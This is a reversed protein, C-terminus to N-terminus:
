ECIMMYQTLDKLHRKVVRISGPGQGDDLGYAKPGYNASFTTETVELVVIFVKWPKYYLISGVKVNM